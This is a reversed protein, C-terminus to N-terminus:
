WFIMTDFSWSTPVMSPTDHCWAVMFCPQRNEYPRTLWQIIIVLYSETSVMRLVRQLCKDFLKTKIRWPRLEGANPPDLPCLGRSSCLNPNLFYSLRDCFENM